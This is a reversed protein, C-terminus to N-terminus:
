KDEKPAEPAPKQEPFLLAIPITVGGRATIIKQTM